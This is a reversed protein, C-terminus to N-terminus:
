LDHVLHREERNFCLRLCLISLSPQNIVKTRHYKRGPARKTQSRGESGQLNRHEFFTLKLAQLFKIISLQSESLNIVNYTYRAKSIVGSITLNLTMLQQTQSM